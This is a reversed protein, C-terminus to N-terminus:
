GSNYQHYSKPQFQQNGQNAFDKKNAKYKSQYESLSVKAVGTIGLAKLLDIVM